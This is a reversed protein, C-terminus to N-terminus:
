NKRNESILKVNLLFTRMEDISLGNSQHIYYGDVNIKDYSKIMVITTKWGSDHIPEIKRNAIDEEDFVYTSYYDDNDIYGESIEEPCFNYEYNRSNTLYGKLENFNKIKLVKYQKIHEEFEAIKM